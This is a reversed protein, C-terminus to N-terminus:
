DEIKEIAEYDGVVPIMDAEARLAALVRGRRLIADAIAHEDLRYEGRRIKEKIESLATPNHVASVDQPNVDSSVPRFGISGGSIEL